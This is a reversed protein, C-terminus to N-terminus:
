GSPELRRVKVQLETVYEEELNTDHADVRYLELPLGDPVLGLREVGAMLEGCHAELRDYARRCFLSAYEGAPLVADCPQEPRTLFFVCAFHNSVGQRLSEGDLIAGMTQKGIIKISDQHRKELKKLLLDIEKELIVDEEFFVYPRAELRRVSVRGTEVGAYTNLSARRERAESKAAALISIKRDLMAEEANLFELTAEVSRRGLYDRDGGGAGGTGAPRPSINLTCIDQFTYMRYGNEGRQPLLLGKEEYYRLTDPHLGFLRAIEHIQYPGKM